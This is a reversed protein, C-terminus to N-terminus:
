DRKAAGYAEFVGPDEWRAEFISLLSRSPTKIGNLNLREDTPLLIQACYDVDREKGSYNDKMALDYGWFKSRFNSLAGPESLCIKNLIISTGKKLTSILDRLIHTAYKDPLDHLVYRIFYVDACKVSQKALFNQEQFELRDEMDPPVSVDAIVAALDQLICRMDPYKRLIEIGASGSSGDIDVMLKQALTIATSITWYTFSTLSLSFGVNPVAIRMLLPVPGSILAHFDDLVALITDRSARLNELLLVDFLADVDFSPELFGRAASHTDIDS